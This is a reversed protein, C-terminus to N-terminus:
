ETAPVCTKAPRRFPLGLKGELVAVGALVLGFGALQPWSLTEGLVVWALLITIAPGALSILSARGAGIRRIGEYLLFFPVVTSFVILGALWFSGDWSFVFDTPQLTFSGYLMIGLASGGTAALTFRASGTRRMMRQGAVLYVAYSLAAVFSWAVGEWFGPSITGGPALIVILGGYSIAFALIQRPLPPRRDLAANILVVFLPFTFLVIRSLGAGLIDIATFDAVTALLFLLGAGMCLAWDTRSMGRPDGEGKIAAVGWILPWALVLRLLVLTGVTMGTVLILKVFIGKLALGLTAILVMALAATDQTKPEM